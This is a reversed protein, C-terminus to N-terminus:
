ELSQPLLPSARQRLSWPSATTFPWFNRPAPNEPVRDDATQQGCSRSTWRRWHGDSCLDTRCGALLQCAPGRSRFRIGSWINAYGLFTIPGPLRFSRGEIQRDIARSAVVLHFSATDWLGFGYLTAGSPHSGQDAHLVVELLAPEVV